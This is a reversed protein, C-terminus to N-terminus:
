LSDNVCARYMWRTQRRTDKLEIRSGSSSLVEETEEDDDAAKQLSPLDLPVWLEALDALCATEDEKEETKTNNAGSSSHSLAALMALTSHSACIERKFETWSISCDNQKEGESDESTEDGHEHALSSRNSSSCTSSSVPLPGDTQPSSHCDTYKEMIEKSYDNQYYLRYLSAFLTCLEETTLYGDGNTDYLNFLLKLKESLSCTLLLCIGMTMERFDVILQQTTTTSAAKTKTTVRAVDEKSTNDSKPAINRLSIAPAFGGEKRRPFFLGAKSEAFGFVCLLRELQSAKWSPAAQQLMQYVKQAIQRTNESNETYNESSPLLFCADMRAKAFRLDAQRLEEDTFHAYVQLKPLDLCPTYAFPVNSMQALNKQIQNENVHQWYMLRLEAIREVTELDTEACKILQDADYFTLATNNIFMSIEISDHMHCIVNECIKLIGLAVQLFFSSGQHLFVDWIRMVTESPLDNTFACMFWRTTIIELPFRIHQFHAALKPLKWYILDKLVYQDVLSAITGISFYDQMKYEVVNAFMDFAQEEDEFVLLLWGAIFNMGQCYGVESNRVSYATLIRRLKDQNEKLSFVSHGPFTRDIDKTIDVLHQAKPTAEASLLMQYYNQQSRSLHSAHSIFPWLAQRFNPPIGKLLLSTWKHAGRERMNELQNAKTSMRTWQKRRAPLSRLYRKEWDFYNRVVYLPKTSTFGHIDTVKHMSNEDVSDEETNSALIPDDKHRLSLTSKNLKPLQVEGSLSHSSLIFGNPTISQEWAKVLADYTENRDFLATFAFKASLTHVHITNPLALCSRRKSISMIDNLAIMKKVKKWRTARCRSYFCLWHSSIFMRGYYLYPLASGEKMRKENQLKQQYDKPAKLRELACAYHHLLKEEKPLGFLQCLLPPADAQEFKGEPDAIRHSAKSQMPSDTLAAPYPKLTDMGIPRSSSIPASSAVQRTGITFASSLRTGRENQQDLHWSYTTSPVLPTVRKNNSRHSGSFYRQQRTTSAIQNNQQRQLQLNDSSVSLIFPASPICRLPPLETTDNEDDEAEEEQDAKENEKEKEKEKERRRNAKKRTKKKGRQQRQQELQEDAEGSIEPLWKPGSSPTSTTTSSSSPSSAAAVAASILEQKNNPDFHAEKLATVLSELTQDRHWLNTFLYKQKTVTAVAIANPIVKASSVQRVSAVHTLPLVVQTDKFFAFSRFWLRKNTLFLRGPHLMFKRQLACSVELIAYEDAALRISLRDGSRNGSRKKTTSKHM